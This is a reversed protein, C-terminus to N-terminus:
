ARVLYITNNAAPVPISNASNLVEVRVIQELSAVASVAANAYSQATAVSNDLTVKKVNVAATLADVSQTLLALQETVTPM